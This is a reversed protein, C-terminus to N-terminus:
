CSPVNGSVCHCRCSSSSTYQCSSCSSIICYGVTSTATQAHILPCLSVTTMLRMTRCTVWQVWRMWQSCDCDNWESCYLLEMRNMLHCLPKATYLTPSAVMLYLYLYHWNTYRTKAFAECVGRIRESTSWVTNGASLVVYAKVRLYEGPPAVMCIHMAFAQTWSVVWKDVGLPYIVSNAMNASM